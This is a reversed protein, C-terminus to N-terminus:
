DMGPGFDDGGAPPMGDMDWPASDGGNMDAGGNMASGVMESFSDSQDIFRLEQGRFKM